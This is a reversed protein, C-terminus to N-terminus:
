ESHWPHKRDLWDMARRLAVVRGLLTYNTKSRFPGASLDVIEDHAGKPEPGHLLWNLVPRRLLPRLCAVGWCAKGERCTRERWVSM